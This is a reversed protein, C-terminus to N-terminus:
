CGKIIRLWAIRLHTGLAALQCACTALKQASEPSGLAIASTRTATMDTFHRLTRDTVGHHGHRTRPWISNKLLGYTVGHCRSPRAVHPEEVFWIPCRGMEMQASVRLRLSSSSRSGKFVSKTAKLGHTCEAHVRHPSPTNPSSTQTKRLLVPTSTFCLHPFTQLSSVAQLPVM